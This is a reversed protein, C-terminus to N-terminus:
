GRRSDQTLSEGFLDASCLAGEGKVPTYVPSPQPSPSLVFVGVQKM